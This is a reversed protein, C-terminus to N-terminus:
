DEFYFCGNRDEPHNYGGYRGECKVRGEDDRDRFNAYICDSCNGSFFGNPIKVIMKKDIM